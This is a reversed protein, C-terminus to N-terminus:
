RHITDRPEYIKKLSDIQKEIQEIRKDSKSDKYASYPITWLFTVGSIILSVWWFKSNQYQNNKLEKEKKEEKEKEKLKQDKIEKYKYYGELAFSCGLPTLKVSHMVEDFDLLKDSQLSDVVARVDKVCQGTEKIRNKNLQLDSMMQSYNCEQGSEKSIYQLITDKDEYEQNM